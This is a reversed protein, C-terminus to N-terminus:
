RQSGHVGAADFIRSHELRRCYRLVATGVTVIAVHHAKSEDERERRGGERREHLLKGSLRHGGDRLDIERRREGGDM